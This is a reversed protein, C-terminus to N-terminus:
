NDDGYDYTELEVGYITKTLMKMATMMETKEQKSLTVKKISTVGNEDMNALLTRDQSRYCHLPSHTTIFVQHIAKQERVLQDFYHILVDQYKPSLNLEIEELLLVKPKTEAIKFLIYIIQQVGTGYSSLPIDNFENTFFLDLLNPDERRFKFNMSNNFPNSKENAAFTKDKSPVKFKKISEMISDFETKRTNSLALNFLWNKFQGASLDKIDKNEEENKFYRDYDIFLVSDNMLRLIDFVDYTPSPLTTKNYVETAGIHISQLNQYADSSGRPVIDGKITVVIEKDKESIVKGSVLNSYVNLKQVETDNLAIEVKFTIPSSSPNVGFRFIHNHRQIVGDWFDSKNVTTRQGFDGSVAVIDLKRSFITEILKLLNSKGSNNFGFVFNIELFSDIELKALSKFNETSISKIKM